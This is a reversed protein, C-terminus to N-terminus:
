TTSDNISKKIVMQVDPHLDSFNFTRPKINLLIPEYHYIELNTYLILDNSIFEISNDIPIMEIYHTSKIELKYIDNIRSIFKIEDIISGLM